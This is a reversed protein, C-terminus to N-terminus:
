DARLTTIPDVRGARRAPLWAALLGASALLAAAGVYFRPDAPSVGYLQSELWRLGMAAVGVGLTIGIALRVGARGVVQRVVHRANAGLALRIGFDRLRTTVYFGINGYIGLAAMLLAIASFGALLSGAFRERETQRRLRDHMEEMGFVVLDSGAASLGAQLAGFVSRPQGKTRAIVSLNLTDFQELAFYVDPDEPASPDLVLNRQRLDPAVGIVTVWQVTEGNAGAELPRGFKFRRGLPDKSPWLAEALKESVVAVGETDDGRDADTFGRGRLIPIGLVDFYTPTVLHRYTRTGGGYPADPALASGEASVVTASSAGSMPTGVSLAANSIGPASRAAVLLRDRTARRLAPEMDEPLGVRALAVQEAEFGPEIDLLNVITATMLGAGIVLLMALAVQGVLLADRASQAIATGSTARITTALSKQSGAVRISAAAARIGTTALLLLITLLALVLLFVTARADFAAQRPLTVPALQLMLRSLTAAVVVGLVTGAVVLVTAEALQSRLLDFRSAGIAVRVATERQREHSRAILLSAVNAIVILWLALM